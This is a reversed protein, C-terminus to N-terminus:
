PEKKTNPQAAAVTVAPQAPTNYLYVHRLSKMKEIQAVAASSVKTGSLNLYTLQSLPALKALNSGTVQTGELHLARLHTFKALTDFSADTVATRALDAEVIYPAFKLFGALQADGFSAAVDVTSLVLGDSPVRSVRVLKAGLSQSMQGIEGNMASYDGVPQLPVEPLDERITIGALSTASASAGQQVWATIWAIEEAKLPPKGEAPMFQKHSPPLTVRELLLSRAPQGAVIVAGDKGGKMLEEYTDLRLGGKVESEGHCTVCNSDFIPHIHRTYFSAANRADANVSGPVLWHKIPAPMYETLYNNGYTLSGGQHATFVLTLLVCSLLAPYVRPVAGSVWWPRALLCLLVGISLAIGGWMHRTVVPGVSGGGFALLFGLTLAGLCAILALALVFEAAERLAPRFRGGAELVPVLVLLGIPLHVALPHFRGLFQQWDAHPKGDMHFLWPLALLALSFLLSALWQIRIKRSQPLLGDALAALEKARIV